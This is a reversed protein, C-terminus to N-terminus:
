GNLRQARGFRVFLKADKPSLGHLQPEEDQEFVNLFETEPRLCLGRKLMKAQFEPTCDYCFSNYSDEGM